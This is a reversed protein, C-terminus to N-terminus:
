GRWAKERGSGVYRPEGSDGCSERKRNCSTERLLWDERGARGSFDVLLSGVVSKEAKAYRKGNREGKRRAEKKPEKTGAEGTRAM